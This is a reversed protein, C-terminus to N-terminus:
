YRVISMGTLTYLGASGAQSSFSSDTACLTFIKADPNIELADMLHLTNICADFYTCSVFVDPTVEFELLAAELDASTPDPPVEVPPFISYPLQNSTVISSIAGCVENTYTKAEYIYGITRAGRIALQILIPELLSKAPTLAGFM